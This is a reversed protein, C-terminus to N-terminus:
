GTELKGRNGTAGTYLQLRIPKERPLRAHESTDGKNQECKPLETTSVQHGSAREVVALIKRRSHIKLEEVYLWDKKGTQAEVAGQIFMM